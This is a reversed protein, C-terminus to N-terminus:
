LFKVALIIDGVFLLLSLVGMVQAQRCRKKTKDNLEVGKKRFVAPVVLAMIGFAPCIGVTCLGMIASVWAFKALKRIIDNEM